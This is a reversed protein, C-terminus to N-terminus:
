ADRLLIYVLCCGRGLGDVLAYVLEGACNVEVGERRMAQKVPDQIPQRNSGAEEKRQSVLRNARLDHHYHLRGSSPEGEKEEYGLYALTYLNIGLSLCACMHM